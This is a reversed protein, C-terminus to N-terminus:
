TGNHIIHTVSNQIQTKILVIIHSQNIDKYCVETHLEVGLGLLPKGLDAEVLQYKPYRLCDDLVGRLKLAQVQREKLGERSSDRNLAYIKKM